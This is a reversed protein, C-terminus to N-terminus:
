VMEELEVEVLLPVRWLFVAVIAVMVAGVGIGGLQVYTLVNEGM